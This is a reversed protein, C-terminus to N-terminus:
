LQSWLVEDLTPAARLGLVRGNRVLVGEANLRQRQEAFQAHHAPFAIRGDARVIRHWPLCPDDNGALTRAVLRARGPLGARRAIEGYSAVQGGPVARIAAIIAEAASKGPM